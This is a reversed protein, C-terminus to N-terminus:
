KRDREGIVCQWWVAVRQLVSCCVSCCMNCCVSCCASCCVICCVSHCASCCNSQLNLMGTDNGAVDGSLVSGGCQLVICCSAVCVAVCAAVCLAACETVCVTMEQWTGLNVCQWWVVVCVAVHQVVCQLM